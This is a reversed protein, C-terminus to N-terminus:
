SGARTRANNQCLTSLRVCRGQLGFLPLDTGLFSLSSVTAGQALRQTSVRCDGRVCLSFADKYSCRTGDHVMRKMSVVEGTERSECYLHCREKAPLSAAPPRCPARIAEGPTHLPPAVCPSMEVLTKPSVQGWTARGGPCVSLSLPPCCCGGDQRQTEQAKSGPPQPSRFLKGWGLWGPQQHLRARM